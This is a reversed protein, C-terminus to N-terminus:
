LRKFLFLISVKNIEDDAGKNTPSSGYGVLKFILGSPALIIMLFDLMNIIKHGTSNTSRGNRTPLWAHHRMTWDPWVISCLHGHSWSAEARCTNERYRQGHSTRILGPRTIRRYGSLPVGEHGDSTLMSVMRRFPVYRHPRFNGPARLRVMEAFVSHLHADQYIHSPPSRTSSSWYRQVPRITSIIYKHSVCEASRSSAISQQRFAPFFYATDILSHQLPNHSGFRQQEHAYALLFSM